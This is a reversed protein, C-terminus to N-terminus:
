YYDSVYVHNVSGMAYASATITSGYVSSRMPIYDDEPTHEDEVDM